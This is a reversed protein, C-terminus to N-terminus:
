FLIYIYLKIKNDEQKTKVLDVMQNIEYKTDSITMNTNKTQFM